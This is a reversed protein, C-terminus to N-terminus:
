MFYKIIFIIVAAAIILWGVPNSLLWSLATVIYPFILYILYALLCLMIIIFLWALYKMIGSDPITLVPMKLNPFKERIITRLSPIRSGETGGLISLTDSETEIIEIDDIEETDLREYQCTRDICAMGDCCERDFHCSEGEPICGIGGGGGGGGSESGTIPALTDFLLTYDYEMTSNADAFSLMAYSTFETTTHTYDSGTVNETLTSNVTGAIRSVWETIASTSINDRVTQNATVFNFAYV